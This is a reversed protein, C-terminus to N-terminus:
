HKIGGPAAAPTGLPRLIASELALIPETVFPNYDAVINAPAKTPTPLHVVLLNAEAGKAASGNVDVHMLADEFWGVFVNPTKGSVADGGMYNWMGYQNNGSNAGLVQVMARQIRKRVTADSSDTGPEGALDPVRIVASVSNFVWKVTATASKGPPLDGIMSQTDGNILAASTLTYRTNNTVTVRAHSGDIMVAQIDVPGGAAVSIPLEYSRKDWLGIQVGRIVTGNDQDLTLDSGLSEIRSMENPVTGWDSHEADASKLAIDYSTRRPSYLTFQGFGAFTPSGAQGEVVVAKNVTLSGGKISVAILYSIVTFGLILGPATYWAMERKDLKKLVLYSVPILLV